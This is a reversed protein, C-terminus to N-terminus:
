QQEHRTVPRFAKRFCSCCLRIDHDDIELVRHTRGDLVRRPHVGRVPQRCAVRRHDPDVGGARGPVLVIDRHDGLVAGRHHERLGFVLVLDTTEGRRRRAGGHYRQDFGRGADHRGGCETCGRSHLPHGEAADIQRILEADIRVVALSEQPL